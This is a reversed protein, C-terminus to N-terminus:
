GTALFRLVAQTCEAVPRSTDVRLWGSPPRHMGAAWTRFLDPGAGAQEDGAAVPGDDLDRCQSALARRHRLRAALLGLDALVCEVYRYRAGAAAALAQGDTLLRDYYCPSDLIVDRGAALLDGALGFAVAYAALGAGAGATAALDEPDTVPDGHGPPLGAAALASKLVDHDLVVAGSAWAVARALTSKGSGPVGSMQVLLRASM